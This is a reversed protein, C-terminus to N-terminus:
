SGAALLAKALKLATTILYNGKHVVRGGKELLVISSDPSATGVAKWLALTPDRLVLPGQIEYQDRVAKCYASTAPQGITDSMIVFWFGFASPSPSLASLEAFYENAAGAFM